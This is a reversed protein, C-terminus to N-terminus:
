LSLGVLALNRYVLNVPNGVGGVDSFCARCWRVPAMEDLVREEYYVYGWGPGLLSWRAEYVSM